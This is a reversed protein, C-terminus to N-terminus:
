IVPPKGYLDFSLGQSMNIHWFADMNEEYFSLGHM